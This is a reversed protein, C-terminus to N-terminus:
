TAVAHDTSAGDFGSTADIFAAIRLRGGAHILLRDGMEIAPIEAVLRRHQAADEEINVVRIILGAREAVISRLSAEAEECLPCETRVYLTIMNREM